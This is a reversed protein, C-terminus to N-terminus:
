SGQKAGRPKGRNVTEIIENVKRNANELMKITCQRKRPHSPTMRRPRQGDAAAAGTRQPLKGGPRNGDLGRKGALQRQTPVTSQDQFTALKGEATSGDQGTPASERAEAPFRRTLVSPQPFRIADLLSDLELLFQLLNAFSRCEEGAPNFLRGAPEGNSYSDICVVMTKGPIVSNTQMTYYAGIECENNYTYCKLTVFGTVNQLKM